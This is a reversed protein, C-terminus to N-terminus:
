AAILEVKPSQLVAQSTQYQVNIDSYM